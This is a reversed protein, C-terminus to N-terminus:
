ENPACTVAPPCESPGGDTGPESGECHFGASCWCHNSYVCISEEDGFETCDVIANEVQVGNEVNSAGCSRAVAGILEPAIAEDSGAESAGAESSGVEAPVAGGDVFAPDDSVSVGGDMQQPASGGDVDTANVCHASDGTDVCEVECTEVRRTAREFLCLDEWLANGQCFRPPCDRQPEDLPLLGDDVDDVDDLPVDPSGEPNGSNSNGPPAVDSPADGETQGPGGTDAINVEEAPVADSDDGASQNDDTTATTGTAMSNAGCGLALVLAMSAAAVPLTRLM